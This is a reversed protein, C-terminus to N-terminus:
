SEEEITYLVVENPRVNRVAKLDKAPNTTIWKHSLCYGFFTILTQREGKWTVRSVTRSNRFDELVELQVDLLAKIERTRCFSAM